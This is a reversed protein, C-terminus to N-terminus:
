SIARRMLTRGTHVGFDLRSINAADGEAISSTRELHVQPDGPYVFMGQRIPITIDILQM